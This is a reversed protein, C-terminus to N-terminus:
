RETPPLAAVPMVDVSTDTDSGISSQQGCEALGHSFAISSQQEMASHMSAHKLKAPDDKTPMKNGKIGAFCV